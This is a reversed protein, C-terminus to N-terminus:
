GELPEPHREGNAEQGRRISWCALLAITLWFAVSGAISLELAEDARADWTAEAASTAAALLPRLMAEVRAGDDLRTQLQGAVDAYANWWAAHAGRARGRADLALRHLAEVGSGWGRPQASRGFWGFLSSAIEGSVECERAAVLDAIVAITAGCTGGLGHVTQARAPATLIRQRASALDDLAAQVVARQQAPPLLELVRFAVTFEGDARSHWLTPLGFTTGINPDLWSAVVSNKPPAASRAIGREIPGIPLGHERIGVSGVIEDVVPGKASLPTEAVLQQPINDIRTLNALVSHFSPNLRLVLMTSASVLVALSLALVPFYSEAGRERLLVILVGGILLVVGVVFVAPHHLRAISAVILVVALVGAVASWLPAREAPRELLPASAGLVFGPVVWVMMALAPVSVLDPVDRVLPAFIAIALAAGFWGALGRLSPVIALVAFVAILAAIAALGGWGSTFHGAVWDIFRLGIGLFWLGGLSSAVIHYNRYSAAPNTAALQLWLAIRFGVICALAGAPAVIVGAGLGILGSRLWSPLKRTAPSPVHFVAYALAVSLAAGAAVWLVALVVLHFTANGTAAIPGLLRAVLEEKAKSETFIESAAHTALVFLEFVALTLLSVFGRYVRATWPDPEYGERMTDRLWEIIFSAAAASGLGVWLAVPSLGENQWWLVFIAYGSIVGWAGAVASLWLAYGFPGARLRHM